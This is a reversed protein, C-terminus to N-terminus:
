SRSRSDLYDGLNKGIYYYLKTLFLEWNHYTYTLNFHIMALIDNMESDKDKSLLRDTVYLKKMEESVENYENDEYIDTYHLLKETNKMLFDTYLILLFEDPDKMQNYFKKIKKEFNLDDALQKDTIIELGFNEKNKSLNRILMEDLNDYAFGPILAYLVSEINRKDILKKEITKIILCYFARYILYFSKPDQIFEIRLGDYEDNAKTAFDICMAAIIDHTFREVLDPDPNLCDLAYTKL